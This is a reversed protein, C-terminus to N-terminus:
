DGNTRFSYTKTAPGSRYVTYLIAIAILFDFSHEILHHITMPILGFVTGLGIISRAVLMGLVATILLYRTTQRRSYAIIGAWFLLITGVVALIIVAVLIPALQPNLWTSNFSDSVLMYITPYPRM